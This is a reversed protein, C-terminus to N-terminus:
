LWRSLKSIEMDLERYGDRLALALDKVQSIVPHKELLEEAESEIYRVREFLYRFAELSAMGRRGSVYILLKLYDEVEVLEDFVRALAYAAHSPTVYEERVRLSKFKGLYWTDNTEILTALALREYGRYDGKCFHMFMIREIDQPDTSRAAKMTLYMFSARSPLLLAGLLYSLIAKPDGPERKNLMKVLLDGLPSRAAYLADGDSLAIIYGGAIGYLIPESAHVTKAKGLRLGLMLDTLRGSPMYMLSRYEPLERLAEVLHGLSQCKGDKVCLELEGRVREIGEELESREENRRSSIFIPVM